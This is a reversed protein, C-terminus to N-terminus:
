PTVPPTESSRAGASDEETFQVSIGWFPCNFHVVEVAQVQTTSPFTFSLESFRTLSNLTLLQSAWMDGDLGSLTPIIGDFLVSSAPSECAKRGGENTVRACHGVESSGNVSKAM